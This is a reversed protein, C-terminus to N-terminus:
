YLEVKINMDVTADCELRVPWQGSMVDTVPADTSVERHLGDNVAYRLTVAVMVEDDQPKDLLRKVLEKVKM